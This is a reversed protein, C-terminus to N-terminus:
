AAVADIMNRAIEDWNVESLAATLLDLYVGNDSIPVHEAFYEKLSAALTYAANEKETLVETPEADNWAIEAQEAWLEQSHQDNDIWLSVLWTEYNHYGNHPAHTM